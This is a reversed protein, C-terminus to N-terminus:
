LADDLTLGWAAEIESLIAQPEATLVSLGWVRLSADWGGSILMSSDPSFALSSVRARHGRLQVVPDHTRTDYLTIRRLDSAALWRGDASFALDLTVSERPIEGLRDGVASVLVLRDPESWALTEGDATIAVASPEPSWSIPDLRLTPRASLRFIDGSESLLAAHRGGPATEGEFFTQSSLSPLAEGDRWLDLRSWSLAWILGDVMAGVRRRKQDGLVAVPEGDSLVRVGTLAAGVAALDGGPTFALDKLVNEECLRRHLRETGDTLSWVRLDGDGLSAAITEGDPAFAVASVGSGTSFITPIDRDPLLWDTLRDGLIRVDAATIAVDQAVRAPLRTTSGTRLDWLAVPGEELPAALLHGDASFAMRDILGESARVVGLSHPTPELALVELFGDLTSIALRDGAPSVRLQRLGGYRETDALLVSGVLRSPDGGPPWLLLADDCGVVLRDAADVTVALLSGDCIPPLLTSTGAAIDVRFLRRANFHLLLDASDGAVLRSELRPLTHRTTGDAADLLVGTTDTYRVLVVEGDGSFVASSVNGPRHWQRTLPQAQWRSVGDSAVCLLGAGDPSLSRHRCPPPASQSLIRPRPSTTFAALVGRATASEGLMLANAALTEAQARDRHDLAALSQAVLASQLNANALRHAEATIRLSRVGEATLLIAFAATLLLPIRWRFLLRRLQEGPSYHHASVLRGDLFRAVDAALADASPYRDDPAAATARRMIDCVEPPNMGLSRADAPIVDPAGLPPPQGTLITYLMCGLSYVDSRADVPASARQEPSMYTPTGVLGATQPEDLCCAAGWDVVLTEGRPGIMVNDPKLDRHIVGRSHAYAVAQCVSLFARLLTLRADPPTSSIVRSLSRGQILRMTYFLRGDESQGADHVPVIGPHELRATIEAERSLRAAGPSGVPRLSEKLAVRRRLWTDEVDIVRGM